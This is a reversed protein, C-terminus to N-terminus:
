SAQIRQYAYITPVILVSGSAVETVAVAFIVADDPTVNTFGFTVDSSGITDYTYIGGTSTGYDEEYRDTWNAFPTNGTIAGKGSFFGEACFCTNSGLSLTGSPDTISDSSISVDTDQIQIDAAATVTIAGANKFVGSHTITVTQNGTPISSGAWFFSIGGAETSTKIHPSSAHETLSLAGYDATVSDGSGDGDHIVFVLVGAPTGSPTHTWNFSSTSGTGNTFADFAVTM